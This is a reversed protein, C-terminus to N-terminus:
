IKKLLARMPAGELNELKLPLCILDYHGETVEDLKLTELIIIENELLVQHTAISATFRQISLYDIGILQINNEVCWKSATEDLGCFDEYFNTNGAEWQIQNDTKLLLRTTGAPINAEKLHDYSIINTNRIEKVFCPGILVSLDLQEISKGNEVFHLPADLHTGFHCDMRIASLNNTQEPMKLLFDYSYGISNPWAPMSKNIAFTIDIYM